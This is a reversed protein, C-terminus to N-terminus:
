LAPLVSVQSPLIPPSITNWAGHLFPTSPPATLMEPLSSSVSRGAQWQTNLGRDPPGVGRDPKEKCSAVEHAGESNRAM